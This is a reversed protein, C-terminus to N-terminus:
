EDEKCWKVFELELGKEVIFANALVKLHHLQENKDIEEGLLSLAEMKGKELQENESKLRDIEEDYANFGDVIDSVSFVIKLRQNEVCKGNVFKRDDSLHETADAVIYRPENPNWSPLVIGIPKESM